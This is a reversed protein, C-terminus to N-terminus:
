VGGTATGGVGFLVQLEEASGAASREIFRRFGDAENLYGIEALSRVTFVSDRIWTFRYDWNRSGDHAEPLSSTAAAAIAGTPAHSLGKLVLASRRMLNAHPGSTKGQAAWKQWWSISEELRRDIEADDPSEIEEDDLLEPRRHLISLRRREGQPMTCRGTLSHRDDLELPYNGSISFGM